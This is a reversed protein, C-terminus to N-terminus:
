WEQWRHALLPSNALHPIARVEDERHGKMEIAARTNAPSNSRVSLVTASSHTSLANPGAAIMVM